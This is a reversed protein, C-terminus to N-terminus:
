ISKATRLPGCKWKKVSWKPHHARWKIMEFQGHKMCQYPTSNEGVFTLRFTECHMPSAALCAIFTLEFM